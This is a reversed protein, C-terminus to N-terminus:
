KTQPDHNSECFLNNVMNYYFKNIRSVIHLCNCYDAIIEAAKTVFLYFTQIISRFAYFLVSPQHSFYYYFLNIPKDTPGRRNTLTRM